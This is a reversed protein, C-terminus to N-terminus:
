QEVIRFFYRTAGAPVSFTVTEQSQAGTLVAGPVDVFAGELSASQMVKYNVGAEAVFTISFQDGNLSSSL